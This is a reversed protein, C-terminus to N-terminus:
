LFTEEKHGVSIFCEKGSGAETEEALINLGCKLSM